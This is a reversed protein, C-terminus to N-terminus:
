LCASSQLIVFFTLFMCYVRCVTWLEHMLVHCNLGSTVIPKLSCNPAVWSTRPLGGDKIVVVVIFNMSTVDSMLIRGFSGELLLLVTCLLSALKAKLCIPKKM